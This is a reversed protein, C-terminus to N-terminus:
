EKEDGFMTDLSDKGSGGVSSLKERRGLDGSFLDTVQQDSWGSTLLQERIYKDTFGAQRSERLWQELNAIDTSM